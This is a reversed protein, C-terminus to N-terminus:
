DGAWAPDDAAAAAANLMARAEGGRAEGRAELMVLGTKPPLLLPPPPPPLAGGLGAEGGGERRGEVPGPALPAGKLGAPRREGDSLAKIDGGALAGLLAV